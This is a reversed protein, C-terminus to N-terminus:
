THTNKHSTYTGGALMVNESNRIEINRPELVPRLLPCTVQLDLMFYVYTYLYISPYYSINCYIFFSLTLSLSLPLRACAVVPFHYFVYRLDGQHYSNYSQRISDLTNQIIWNKQTYKKETNDSWIIRQYQSVNWAVPHHLLVCVCVSILSIM